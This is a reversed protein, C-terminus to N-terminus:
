SDSGGTAKSSSERAGELKTIRQDLARREREDRASTEGTELTMQKFCVRQEDLIRETAARIEILSENVRAKLEKGEDQRKHQWVDLEGELAALKTRLANLEQRVEGKYPEFFEDFRRQQKQLRDSMDSLQKNLRSLQQEYTALTEIVERFTHHVASNFNVQEWTFWRSGRKLIQKLWLEASAIAGRRNSMVPPLQDWARNLTSLNPYSQLAHTVQQQDSAPPGSLDSAGNNTQVSFAKTRGEEARVSDRIQKLIEEVEQDVM